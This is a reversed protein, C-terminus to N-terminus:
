FDSSAVDLRIQKIVGYIHMSWPLLLKVNHHMFTIDDMRTRVIVNEFPSMWQCRHVICKHVIFLHRYVIICSTGDADEREKM